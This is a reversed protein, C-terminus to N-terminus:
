PQPESLHQTSPLTHESAVQPAVDRPLEIWFVSGLGVTSDVGINGQMSEILQKCIVLGVGIGEKGSTEQGLRNFPQFLQSLKEPSLGSGTDTVCIRLREPTSLICDVVVRGGVKNYKIANSLLNILIQKLRVRDAHVFYIPELQSFTVSIGHEHTQPEIIAVCEQIVATLAVTELSLSLQGSEIRSLDLIQNILELLYWGAKLIHGLNEKQAPTPPLSAAEMLQAFGLIASLPTRLEHNMNSLFNSKALNAKEAASRANSLEINKAQLVESLKRYRAESEQMATMILKNETIDSLVMRLVPTGDDSQAASTVLRVWIHTGNHKIMRLECTQSEGSQILQSRCLYYINHDLKLIYRSIPQKILAGREVGLLLAATLNAQQILGWENVTCYGVPALNYLDFYSARAAELEAQTRRLEENQMELEIQHVRLNHLMHQIAQPSLRASNEPTAAMQRHTCEKTQQLLTAASSAMLAATDSPKDKSTM